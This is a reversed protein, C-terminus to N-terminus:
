PRTYTVYVRKWMSEVPALSVQGILSEYESAIGLLSGDSAVHCCVATMGSRWPELPSPSDAFWNETGTTSGLPASSIAYTRSSHLVDSSWPKRKWRDVFPPALKRAFGTCTFLPLVQTSLGFVLSRMEFVTNRAGFVIAKAILGVVPVNANM